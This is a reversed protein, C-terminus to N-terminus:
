RLATKDNTGDFWEKYLAISISVVTHIAFFDMDMFAAGLLSMFLIIIVDMFDVEKRHDGDGKLIIGYNSLNTYM